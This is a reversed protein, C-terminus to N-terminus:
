VNIQFPIIPLDNVISSGKHWILWLLICAADGLHQSIHNGKLCDTSCENTPFFQLVSSNCIYSNPLTFFFNLRLDHWLPCEGGMNYPQVKCAVVLQIMKQWYFGAKILYGSWPLPLSLFVGLDHLSSFMLRLQFCYDWFHNHINSTNYSKKVLFNKLWKLSKVKAQKQALLELALSSLDMM